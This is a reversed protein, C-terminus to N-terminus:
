LPQFPFRITSFYTFSGMAFHNFNVDDAFAHIQDTSDSTFHQSFKLREERVNRGFAYFRIRFKHSADPWGVILSMRYYFQSTSKFTRFVFFFFSELLSLSQELNFVVLSAIVQFFCTVRSKREQLLHQTLRCFRFSPRYILYYCQRLM